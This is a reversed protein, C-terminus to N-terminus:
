TQAKDIGDQTARGGAEPKTAGKKAESSTSISTPSPQEYEADDDFRSARDCRPHRRPAACKARTAPTDAVMSHTHGEPASPSREFTTPSQLVPLQSSSRERTRRHVRGREMELAGLRASKRLPANRQRGPGHLYEKAALLQEHGRLAVTRQIGCRGYATGMSGRADGWDPWAIEWRQKPAERLATM